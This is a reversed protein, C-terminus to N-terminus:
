EGDIFDLIRQTKSKYKPSLSYKYDNNTTSWTRNLIDRRYLKYVVLSLADQNVNFPIAYSIQKITMPVKAGKLVKLVARKKRQIKSILKIATKLITAIKKLKM